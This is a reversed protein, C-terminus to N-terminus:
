LFNGIVVFLYYINLFLLSLFVYRLGKKIDKKMNFIIMIMFGLFIMAGLKLLSPILFNGNNIFPAILLNSEKAGKNIAYYTSLIDFINLIILLVFLLEIKKKTKM